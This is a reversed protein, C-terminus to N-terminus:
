QKTFVFENCETTPNGNAYTHIGLEKKADECINPSGKPHWPYEFKTEKQIGSRFNLDQDSRVSLCKEHQQKKLNM